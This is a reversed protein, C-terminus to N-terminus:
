KWDTGSKFIDVLHMRFYGRGFNIWLDDSEDDEMIPFNDGSGNVLYKQDQVTAIKCQIMGSNLFVGSIYKTQFMYGNVLDNTLFLDMTFSDYDFLRGGNQTKLAPSTGDIHIAYHRAICLDEALAAAPLLLALILIATILKKM